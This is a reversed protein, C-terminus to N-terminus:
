DVLMIKSDKIAVYMLEGVQPIDGYERISMSLDNHVEQGADTKIVVSVLLSMSREDDSEFVPYKMRVGVIRAVGSYIM